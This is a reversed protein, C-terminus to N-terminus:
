SRESERAHIISYRASTQVYRPRSLADPEVTYALTRNKKFARPFDYTHIYTHITDCIRLILITLNGIRSTILQIFFIIKERDKNPGSFKTERSPNPLRM